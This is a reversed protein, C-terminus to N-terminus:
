LLDCDARGWRAHDCRGHPWLAKDHAPKRACGYSSREWAHRRRRSVCHHRNRPLTHCGIKAQLGTDTARRQIMRYVDVRHM